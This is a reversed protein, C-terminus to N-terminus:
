PSYCLSACPAYVWHGSTQDKIILVFSPLLNETRATAVVYIDWFSWYLKMTKHWYNIYPQILRFCIPRKGSLWHLLWTGSGSQCSTRSHCGWWEPGTPTHRGRIVTGSEFGQPRRRESDQCWPWSHLKNCICLQIQKGKKRNTVDQRGIYEFARQCFMSTYLITQNCQQLATM